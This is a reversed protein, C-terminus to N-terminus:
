FVSLRRASAETLAPFAANCSKASAADAADRLYARWGRSYARGADSNLYRTMLRMMSMRTTTRPRGMRSGARRMTAAMTFNVEGPGMKKEWRRMQRSPAKKEMHFNRVM